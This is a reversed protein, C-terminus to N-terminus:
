LEIHPKGDREADGNMVTQASDDEPVVNVGVKPVEVDKSKGKKGGVTALEDV